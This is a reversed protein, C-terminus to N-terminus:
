NSLLRILIVTECHLGRLSGVTAFVDSASPLLNHGIRNGSQNLEFVCIQLLLLSLM